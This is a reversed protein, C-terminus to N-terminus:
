CGAPLVRGLETGNTAPGRAIQSATRSDYEAMGDSYKATPSYNNAIRYAEGGVISSAYGVSTTGFRDAGSLGLYSGVAASIRSPFRLGSRAYLYGNAGDSKMIRPVDAYKGQLVVLGAIVAREINADGLIREEISQGPEVCVESVLDPRIREIECVGNRAGGRVLYSGRVQMMGYVFTSARAMAAMKVPDGETNIASFVSSKVFSSDPNGSNTAHINRLASERYALAMTIPLMQDVTLGPFASPFHRGLVYKVIRGIEQKKQFSIGAM